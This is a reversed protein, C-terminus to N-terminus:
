SANIDSSVVPELKEPEKATEFINHISVEM